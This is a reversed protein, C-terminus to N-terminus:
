GEVVPVFSPDQGARLEPGFVALRRALYDSPTLGALRRFERVLHPQDCYGQAAALQAWRPPGQPDIAALTRVLRQVRIVQQPPLGVFRRCRDIFHKHSVGVERCLQRVSRPPVGCLQRLALDLGRVPTEVLRRRLWAEAVRLRARISRQEGVCQRLQQAQAGWVDDLAVVRDTLEHLPVGLVAHARHPRFIVGLAHTSAQPENIMSGAQIGCVWARRQVTSDGSAGATRIPEGLNLVLVAQGTPLILDRTYGIRGKAHWLLEVSESLPAAPRHAVFSFPPASM